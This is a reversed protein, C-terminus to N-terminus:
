REHDLIDMIAITIIIVGCIIPWIPDPKILYQFTFCSGAMGGNLFIVFKQLRIKIM